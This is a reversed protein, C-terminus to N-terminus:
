IMESRLQAFALSSSPSSIQAVLKCDWAALQSSVSTPGTAAKKGKRNQTSPASREM